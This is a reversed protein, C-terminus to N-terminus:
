SPTVSPLMCAFIRDFAGSARSPNKATGFTTSHAQVLQGNGLGAVPQTRAVHGRDFQGLRAKRRDVAGIRGMQEQETVQEAERGSLMQRVDQSYGAAVGLIANKIQPITQIIKEFDKKGLCYANVDTVAKVGAARPEGTLLALEGFFQGKGLRNVIKGGQSEKIVEVDGSRILYFANGEEGEHVIFDGAQFSAKRFCELFGRLEVADLPSFVACQRIFNRLSIDSIYDEFYEKLAPHKQLIELFRARPLELAVLEGSARVTFESAEGTLVAQEGFHDGKALTAMTTEKGESNLGVLRAKGSYIVYFSDSPEGAKCITNGLAFKRESFGDILVELDKDPLLSLFSTKKLMAEIDDRYM